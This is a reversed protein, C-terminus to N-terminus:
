EAHTTGGIEDIRRVKVQWIRTPKVEFGKREIWKGTVIWEGVITSEKGETRKKIEKEIEKLRKQAEKVAEDKVIEELEDREALLAALVDDGIEPAEMLLPPKCVHIFPCELCVDPSNIPEPLTGDHVHRNVLELKQLTKEAIDLYPSLPVVIQKLQGTSKNKFLMLGLEKEDMLLYLLMQIPYKRLWVKPSDLMDEISNVGRWTWPSVSKIEIPIAEGNWLIKGDIHGTLEFDPWSFPRQQEIVDLGAERLDDMVAAEHRNGEDFILQLTPDHPKRLDWKTRALVLYRACPHGAESARNVHQPYVKIKRKKAELVLRPVDPVLEEIPVETARTAALPM